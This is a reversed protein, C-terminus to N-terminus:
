FTFLVGLSADTNLSFGTTKVKVAKGTQNYQFLATRAVIHFNDKVDVMLGPCLAVGWADSKVHMGTETHTYNVATDAFFSVSNMRAFTTRLYPSASFVHMDDDDIADNALNIYSAGVQAGIAFYPNIQYGIEPTISYMQATNSEGAVKVNVCSLGLSGGVYIQAQVTAMCCIMFLSFLLKKM